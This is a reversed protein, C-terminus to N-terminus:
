WHRNTLSTCYKKKTKQGKCKSKNQKKKTLSTNLKNLFMCSMFSCYNSDLLPLIYSIVAFSILLLANIIPHLIQLWSCHVFDYYKPEFFSLPLSDARITAANFVVNGINRNNNRFPTHLIAYTRAHSRTHAHSRRSDPFNQFIVLSGLLDASRSSLSTVAIPAKTCLVLTRTCYNTM